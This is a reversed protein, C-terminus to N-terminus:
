ARGRLMGHWYLRPLAYAKMLYMSLREKSQDIPFTEQPQGEYDFEALVLKGYGTVLPCSTYGDYKATLPEGRIAALLNHVLVPAQKRIAAGTKSTPLGSCDGIPFVNPFRPHQLTYKDVEVWGAENALSSTKILDPASMPPTVHIMDYAITIRERTDLREFVALKQEPRLEVLNHQLRIEIGKRKAVKELTQRYREVAFLSAQASAFIIQTKDRVGARRFADDALYMIKQPAGGCKVATNPMTFLATGGRFTRVCEWTYDVQQYSYNSCIQRRGIGQKLGPIKEWDIQIGLAVVLFDYGIRRGTHTVVANAEPHIEVVREQIWTAGRPIFASEERQSLEKPFVGAGVLTWLPQYYHKTSPEVIAVDYHKLKRRLQAAVTIGATGGGLILIQYHDKVSNTTM